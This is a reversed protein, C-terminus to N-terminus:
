SEKWVSFDLKWYDLLKKILKLIPDALFHYIKDVVWSALYIVVVASLIHALLYLLSHQVATAADWKRLLYGHFLFCTFVSKALGNVIKSSFEMQQFLLFLTVAQAIVIPNCYSWAIGTGPDYKGTLALIATYVAAAAVTYRKKVRVDALRIYAGILYMMVFNVLTYGWDDGYLGVPNLGMFQEGRVAGGIDALTPWVSFLVVVLLIMKHLQHKSLRQLALNLYPSILYLAVYQVVFYNTPLTTAIFDTVSFTGSRFADLLYVAGYFAMVQLLLGIAKIPERRQTTCSYYGSILIFLNVACIFLGELGLLFWHNSSGLAVHGLANCSGGNYHLVIVGCIALIRLLEINSQRTKKM